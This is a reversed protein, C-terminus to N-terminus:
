EFSTAAAADLDPADVAERGAAAATQRAAALTAALERANGPWDRAVLTRRAAATLPVGRVFHTALALVTEPRDRLPAIRIPRAGLRHALAPSFGAVTAPDQRATAAIHVAVPVPSRSAVPRVEADELLAEIRSQALASLSEVFALLLTGGDAERVLGRDHGSSRRHGFLVVDLTADDLSRCDVEVLPGRGVLHHWARVLSKKGAGAPGLVLLPWRSARVRALTALEAAFPAPSLALEPPLAPPSGAELDRRPDPHRVSARLGAAELALEAAAVLTGLWPSERGPESQLSLVFSRGIRDRLEYRQLEDEDCEGRRDLLRETGDPLREAMSVSAVIREAAMQFVTRLIRETTANPTGLLELHLPPSPPPSGGGPRASLTRALSRLRPGLPSGLATLLDASAGIRAVDAGRGTTAAHAAIDIEVVAAEYRDGAAAHAVRARELAVVAEEHRGLASLLKGRVHDFETQLRPRYVQHLLVSAADVARRAMDLDGSAVAASARGLEGEIVLPPAQPGAADRLRTWLALAAAIDGSAAAVRAALRDGAIGVRPAASTVRAHAREAQARADDLDGRRLALLGLAEHLEPASPDGVAEARRAAEVLVERGEDWRGARVLLDALRRAAAVTRHAAPVGLATLADLARRAGLVAVDLRGGADELREALTALLSARLFPLDTRDAIEVAVRLAAVAAVPRGELTALGGEAMARWPGGDTPREAAARWVEAALEPEGEAAFAVGLAVECMQLAAVAGEDALIRRARQGRALAEPGARLRPHDAGLVWCAAHDVTAAVRPALDRAARADTLLAIAAEQDGTGLVLIAARLAAAWEPPADTGELCALVAPRDGRVLADEAARIRDDATAGTV